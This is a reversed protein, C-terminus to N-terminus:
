RGRQRGEERPWGWGKAGIGMRRKEVLRDEEGISEPGREGRAIGRQM